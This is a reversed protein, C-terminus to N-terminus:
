NSLFATPDVAVGYEWVEYHLHAGTSHGTSGLRGVTDGFALLQGVEVEVESLHAYLTTFGYGHDIVVHNGYGQESWGATVVRGGATAAIPTRIPAVLDIGKHLQTRGSIPSTRWGFESSIWGGVPWLSPRAAAQAERDTVTDRLQGISETLMTLDASVTSVLGDLDLRIADVSSRLLNGSDPGGVAVTALSDAFTPEAGALPASPALEAYSQVERVLAGVSGLDALLKSTAFAADDLQSRNVTLQRERDALTRELDTVMTELRGLRGGRILLLATSMAAVLGVLLAALHLAALARSSIRVTRIAEAPDDSTITIIVGDTPRVRKL